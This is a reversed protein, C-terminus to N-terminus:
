RAGAEKLRAIAADLRQRTAALAADLERLKADRGAVATQWITLQEAAAQAASQQTAELSEKLVAIDRELDAARKSESASFERAAALESKLQALSGDLARERQWQLVIVGTLVLCGIANLIPLARSNM